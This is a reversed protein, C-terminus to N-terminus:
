SFYDELKSERVTDLTACHIGGGQTYIHRMRIRVVNLKNKELLKILNTQREDVIVTEQDYSLLNMGVWPSSMDFLNTKFGLDKIKHGIPDRIEKQIRLESESTPAVDEFYLKDWKDFIKPCNKETVRASNLLVLGPRLCMVTSDIHSSRYIDETTHVRYESGLVSQLWQAGLKNGSSSILYLLDKGMRVTNAAEFLIEKEALKHLEELRGGTLKQHKIDEDTLERENEDRFYPLSSDYNILPKPGAIWKFGESFYKYFLPYLATSEYYRSIQYSPSEIVNNGVVLNLDRTNYINNSTSNWDPSSYVESLDFSEPRHVIAGLKKLTNSLGDLDEEVEDYLWKPTAEEALKQALEVNKSSIKDKKNWTLTARTGKATGVIIEKIKDWENHSNIKKFM